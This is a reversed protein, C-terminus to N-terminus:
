FSKPRRPIEIPPEEFKDIDDYLGSRRDVSGDAGVKISSWEAAQQAPFSVSYRDGGNDWIAVFNGDPKIVLSPIIWDRRFAHEYFRLLLALSAPDADHRDGDAKDEDHAKLVAQLARKVPKRVDDPLRHGVKDLFKRRAIMDDTPALQAPAAM